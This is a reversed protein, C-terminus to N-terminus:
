NNGWSNVQFILILSAIQLHVKYRKLDSLGFNIVCQTIRETEPAVIGTQDHSLYLHSARLVPLDSNRAPSEKKTTESILRIQFEKGLVDASFNYNPPM